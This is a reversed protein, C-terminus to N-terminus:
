KQTYPIIIFIFCMENITKYLVFYRMDRGKM